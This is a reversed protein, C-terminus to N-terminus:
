VYTIRITSQSRHFYYEKEIKCPCTSDCGGCDTCECNYFIALLKSLPTEIDISEIDCYYKAVYNILDSRSISM